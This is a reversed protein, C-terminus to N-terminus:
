IKGKFFIQQFRQLVSNRVNEDLSFKWIALLYIAGSVGIQILINMYSKEIFLMKFIWLSLGLLLLAPFIRILTMRFYTWLPIRMVACAMVVTFINGLVTTISTGAAVGVVGWLYGGGVGLPVSLVSFVLWMLAPKGHKGQATLISFANTAFSDAVLGVLLLYLVLRGAASYEPGIWLELFTEGCFFIVIPMGLSVIQLALTTNLWSNKLVEVNGKGITAGFYPVLPFGIARSFGKAYDILRNPMVFYVIHGLGIVHGIILPVSQNQLRSAVMMAASKLSFLMMERAKKRSVASLAVNPIDRDLIVAGVFLLVQVATYCPQLLAMVLLGKGPYRLLLYYSVGARTILLVIRVSNLFYHRQMGSLTATFVQLPFLMAANIGLLLFVTELNAIDRIEQGAILGPSYSLMSFLLFAVVGVPVFFACATSMTQQLDKKDQRGDAISVFRVLSGGIGLDLLGMYGVVSLVLEWLGYDRNGLAHIYVPSMIFAVVVNAVYLTTGTLSNLLLKKSM